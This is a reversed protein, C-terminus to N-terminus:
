PGVYTIAYNLEGTNDGYWAQPVGSQGDFIRLGFDVSLSTIPVTVSYAHNVNYAGWNVFQGNVQLDGFDPGLLWGNRDFGDAYGGAGNDTYEADVWGYPTNIWTGWVDIRYTGVDPLAVSTGAVTNAPITGTSAYSFPKPKGVCSHAADDGGGMAAVYDGHNRYTSTVMNQFTFTVTMVQGNPGFAPGLTNMPGNYHWAYGVNYGAVYTAHFDLIQGQLTGTVEEDLNLTEISGVGSLTLAGNCPNITVDYMHIYAGGNVNGVLHGTQLQYRPVDASATAALTLAAAVAVLAAALYRKM